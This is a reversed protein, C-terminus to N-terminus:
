AQDTSVWGNECICQYYSKGDFAECGNYLDIAAGCISGEGYCFHLDDLRRNLTGKPVDQVRRRLVDARILNEHYPSVPASTVVPDAERAIALAVSFLAALLATSLYM